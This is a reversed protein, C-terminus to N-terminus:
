IALNIMIQALKPPLMGVFADRKPRQQDRKAYATINQSGTSEAIVVKNDNTHVIILEVKNPALGLKNHHSTATSLAPELNPVLRLSIGSKKLKQKLIIGVKQVDRADINFNYASIGM